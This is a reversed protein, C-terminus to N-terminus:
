GAGPALLTGCRQRRLPQYRWRRSVPESQAAVGACCVSCGNIAATFFIDPDPKHQGKPPITLRVIAGDSDWPLFYVPHMHAAEDEFFDYTAEFRIVGAGEDNREDNTRGLDEYMEIYAVKKSRMVRSYKIEDRGTSAGFAPIASTNLKKDSKGRFGEIDNSPCISHKKMFELPHLLFDRTLPM